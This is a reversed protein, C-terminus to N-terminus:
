CFRIVFWAHERYTHSILGDSSRALECLATHNRDKIASAIAEAKDRPM